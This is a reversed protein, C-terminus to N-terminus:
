DIRIVGEKFFSVVETIDVQACFLLDEEFGQYVLDRGHHSLYFAEGLNNQFRHAYLLIIV